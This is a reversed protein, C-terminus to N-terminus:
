REQNGDAKEDMVFSVMRLALLRSDDNEGAQQPSTADPLDFRLELEDKEHLNGPITFEYKGDKEITLQTLSAGNVFIGVRQSNGYQGCELTVKLDARTPEIAFRM